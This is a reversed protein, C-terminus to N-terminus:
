TARLSQSQLRVAPRREPGAVRDRQARRPGVAVWIPPWRDSAFVDSVQADVASYEDAALRAGHGGGRRQCLRDRQQRRGLWTSSAPSPSSRRSVRLLVFTAADGPKLGFTDAFDKGVIGLRGDPGQRRCRGLNTSPTSSTSRAAPSSSRRARRATASSRRTRARRCWPHDREPAEMAEKLQPTYHGAARGADRQVIVQPSNGITQDVLSTQLSTILSGLFVQVGIGVAIGAAILISQVPSKRLFRVAISLSLVSRTRAGGPPHTTRRGEAGDGAPEAPDAQRQDGLLEELDLVEQPLWGTAAGVFAPGGVWIDVGPLEKKLADVAHRVALRHFHTSSSMVISDVGLRRAAGAIEDVPTDPGLFFTTWGAMDFRDAVMRLGLDHGEEPPCALLVTRGSPAATAKAKLVGPYLIEVITRVTTSALHEEWIAAKGTQWAM